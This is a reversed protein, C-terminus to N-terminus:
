HTDSSFKFVTSATQHIKAEADEIYESDWHKKIWSLRISPNIVEPRRNTILILM